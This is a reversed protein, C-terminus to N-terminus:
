DPLVDNLNRGFAGLIESACQPHDTHLEGAVYAVAELLCVGSGPNSHGGKALHTFPLLAAREELVTM